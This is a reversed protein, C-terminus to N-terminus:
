GVRSKTFGNEMEEKRREEKRKETEKKKRCGGQRQEEGAATRHANETEDKNKATQRGRSVGREERM